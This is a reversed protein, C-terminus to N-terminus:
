KPNKGSEGTKVEYSADMVGKQLHNICDELSKHDPKIGISHAVHILTCLGECLTAMDNIIATTDESSDNPKIILIPSYKRETDIDVTVINKSM